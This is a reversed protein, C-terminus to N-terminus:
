NKVIFKGPNKGFVYIYADWPYDSVNLTLRNNQSDSQVYESLRGDVNFVSLYEDGKDVHYEITSFDSTPNPYAPYGIRKNKM